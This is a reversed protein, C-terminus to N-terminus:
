ELLHAKVQKIKLYRKIEKNVPAISKTTIKIGNKTPMCIINKKWSSLTEKFDKRYHAGRSEKRFLATTQTM